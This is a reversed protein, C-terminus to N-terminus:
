GYIKRLLQRKREKYYISKRRERLLQMLYIHIEEPYYDTLRFKSSLIPINVFAKPTYQVTILDCSLEIAMFYNKIFSRINMRNNSNDCIFGIDIDSSAPNFDNRVFSGFIFVNYDIDPFEISLKEQLDILINRRENTSNIPILCM